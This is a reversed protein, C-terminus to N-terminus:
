PMVEVIPRAARIADPDTGSDPQSFVAGVRM